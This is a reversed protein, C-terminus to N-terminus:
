NKLYINARVRFSVGSTNTVRTAPEQHEVEDDDSPIGGVVAQSGHDSSITDRDITIDVDSSRGSAVSTTSRRSHEQAQPLLHLDQSDWNDLM